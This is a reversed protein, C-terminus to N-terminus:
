DKFEADLNRAQKTAESTVNESSLLKAVALIKGENDLQKVHSYTHNDINTKEVEYACNSASVVQPLHSIVLVQSSKSIKKIVKGVLYAIKGSVGTDIEDFVLLSYPDLSNLICKLSLMLRSNEGGSSAKVLNEFPMGENLCVLFAVKDIGTKNPEVEKFEVKFGDRKLGLESMISSLNNELEIAYKKRITSIEKAILMLNKYDESIVKEYDKKIMEFDEVKNLKDEFEHLKTLILSTSSGFKKMLGKLDFLRQNVYEIRAPNFDLNSFKEEFSTLSDSLQSCNEIVSSAEESLSTDKFKRLSVIISSLMDDISNNSSQKSKLYTSYDENLKEFNKLTKEEELLDEIENEKLNYKKIEKIQYNLYEVDIEKNENEFEKLRELDDNYKKLNEDYKKKLDTLKSGIFQDLYFLHKSENLLSNNEGQSHIDILHESVNKYTSLTVIEDNIYYKSTHDISIVRKLLLTDNDIYDQVEQHISIFKKDLKFLASVITKSSKDSILSFDFKDGKLISLSDVILTKGAGTEGVLSIFNSDFELNTDKILALNKIHLEELM